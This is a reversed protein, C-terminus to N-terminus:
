WLEYAVLYSKVTYGGSTSKYVMNYLEYDEKWRVKTQENEVLEQRIISKKLYSALLLVRWVLGM